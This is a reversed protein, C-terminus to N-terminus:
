TGKLKETFVPLTKPNQRFIVIEAVLEMKTRPNGDTGFKWLYPV